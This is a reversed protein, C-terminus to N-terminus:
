LEGLGLLRKYKNERENNIQRQEVKTTNAIRQQSSLGTFEIPKIEVEFIWGDVSYNKGNYIEGPNEEANVHLVYGDELYIKYDLGKTIIGLVAGLTIHRISLIEAKLEKDESSAPANSFNLENRELYFFDIDGAVITQDLEYWFPKWNLIMSM